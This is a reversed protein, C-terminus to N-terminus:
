TLNKCEFICTWITKDSQLVCPTFLFGTSTMIKANNSQKNIM